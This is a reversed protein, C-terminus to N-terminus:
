CKTYYYYAAGNTECKMIRDISMNDYDPKFELVETSLPSESQISTKLMDAIDQATKECKFVCLNESSIDDAFDFQDNKVDYGAYGSIEGDPKKITTKVIFGM